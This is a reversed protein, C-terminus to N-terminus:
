QDIVLKLTNSAESTISIEICSSYEVTLIPIVLGLVNVLLMLITILLYQKEFSTM